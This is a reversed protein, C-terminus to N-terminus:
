QTGTVLYPGPWKLDQWVAILDKLLEDFAYAYWDDEVPVIIESSKIKFSYTLESLIESFCLFIPSTDFLFRKMTIPQPNLTVKTPVM